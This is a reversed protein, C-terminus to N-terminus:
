SGLHSSAQPFFGPDGSPCSDPEAKPLCVQSAPDGGLGPHGPSRNHAQLLRPLLTSAATLFMQESQRGQVGTTHEAWPWHILGDRQGPLLFHPQASILCHHHQFNPQLLPPYPGAMLADPTRQFTSSPRLLSKDVQLCPNPFM